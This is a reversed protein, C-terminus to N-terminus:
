LKLVDAIPDVVFHVTFALNLKKVLIAFDNVLITALQLLSFSMPMTSQNIVHISFFNYSIPKIILKAILFLCLDYRSALFVTIIVYEQLILFVFGKVVLDIKVIVFVDNAYVFALHQIIEHFSFAYQFPQAFLILALTYIHVIYFLVITLPMIIHPISVSLLLPVIATHIFPIPQVVPHMPEALVLFTASCFWNIFTKKVFSFFFTNTLLPISISTQVLAWELLVFFVAFAFEIAIVPVM